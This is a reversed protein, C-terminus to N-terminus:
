HWNVHMQKRYRHLCHTCPYLTAACYAFSHYHIHSEVAQTSCLVTIQNTLIVAPSPPPPPKHAMVMRSHGLPPLLPEYDGGVRHCYHMRLPVWQVKGAMENGENIIAYLASQTNQDSITSTIIASVKSPKFNELLTRTDAYLQDTDEKRKPWMVQVQNVCQLNCSQQM